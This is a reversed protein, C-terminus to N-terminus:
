TYRLHSNQRASVTATRTIATCGQRSDCGCRCQWAICLKDHVAVSFCRTGTGFLGHRPPRLPSPPRQAATPCSGATSQGRLRWRLGKRFGCCWHCPCPPSKCHAGTKCVLHRQPQMTQNADQMRFPACTFCACFSQAAHQAQTCCMAGYKRLGGAAATSSNPLLLGHCPTAFTWLRLAGAAVANRKDRLCRSVASSFMVNRKGCRQACTRTSISRPSEPM